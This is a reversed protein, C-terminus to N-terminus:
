LIYLGTKIIFAPWCSLMFLETCGRFQASSMFYYLWSCERAKALSFFFSFCKAFYRKTTLIDSYDRALHHHYEGSSGSFNKMSTRSSSENGLIFRRATDRSRALLVEANSRQKFGIKCAWSLSAFFDVKLM